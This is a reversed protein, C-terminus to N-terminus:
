LSSMHACRAPFRVPPICKIRRLRGPLASLKAVTVHPTFGHTNDIAIGASGLRQRAHAALQQLTALGHDAVLDLYLVQLIHFLCTCGRPATELRM